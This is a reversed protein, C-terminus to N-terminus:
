KTAYEPFQELLAEISAVAENAKVQAESHLPTLADLSATLEAIKATFSARRQRILNQHFEIQAVKLRLAASHAQLQEAITTPKTTFTNATAKGILSPTILMLIKRTLPSCSPYETLHPNDLAIIQPIVSIKRRFPSANITFRRVARNM